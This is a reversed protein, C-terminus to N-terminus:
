IYKSILRVILDNLLEVQYEGVTAVIHSNGVGSDDTLFVYTGGTTIAFFRLMFECSKDVGSAAVPIIKIGQGAFATISKHLSEVM